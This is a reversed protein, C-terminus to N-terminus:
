PRVVKFVFDGRNFGFRNVYGINPTQPFASKATLRSMERRLYAGLEQGTVYGNRGIDPTGGSIADLFLRRFQGDDNVKQKANGSSIMQRALGDAALTVDASTHFEDGRGIAMATGSFCSDFIALVHKAMSQAMWNTLDTMAIAKLVFDPNIQGSASKAAPADAPVLFGEDHASYEITHGHGAFWLLLRASPDSGTRILFESLARKLDDSRLDTKLTVDFGHRDLVKAIANADKVAENLQPWSRSYKDIGIVLAYSKSYLRIQTPQGGKEPLDIRLAGRNAERQPAPTTARRPPSPPKIPTLADSPPREAERAVPPADAPPVAELNSLQERALDSYSGAPYKNLFVEWADKTGIERVWDYDSKEIASSAAPIIKAPRKSSPALAISGGSLSGSVFPEQMGGTSKLVANRVRGLALRLDLGPEFMNNLLAATFPSHETNGEATSGAKGGYVILTNRSTPKVIAVGASVAHTTSRQRKISRAFPNDRSADLIILSLRKTREAAELLRDLTVAENDAHQSSALKADVPILYNRDRITIGHGSYFVVSIDAGAVAEEFQRIAHKFQVNGINHHTAVIDFGSQELMAAIAKANRSPGPLNPANKYASNGVVLAVRRETFREPATTNALRADADPGPKPPAPAPDFKALRLRALDAWFGTPYKALFDQWAEKTGAREASQYERRDADPDPPPASPKTDLEAPTSSKSFSFHDVMWSAFWPAQKGQSEQAVSSRTRSFVEEISGPTRIQRLLESVFLPEKDESPAILGPAAAYM